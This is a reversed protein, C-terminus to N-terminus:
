IHKSQGHLVSDKILAIASKNDVKLMPAKRATGQVEALVWALWLAQCAANAAAIYEPECTSQAVVKKKMSTWTVPSSNRFFVVGTTSRRVTVGRGIGSDATSVGPLESPDYITGWLGVRTKQACKTRV